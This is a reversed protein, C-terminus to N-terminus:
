NLAGPMPFYTLYSPWTKVLDVIVWNRRFVEDAIVRPRIEALVFQFIIFDTELM